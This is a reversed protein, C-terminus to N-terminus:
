RGPAVSSRTGVLAGDGPGSSRAQEGKHTAVSWGLLCFGAAFLLGYTVLHMRWTARPVGAVHQSERFARRYVVREILITVFFAPILLVMGATPVMWYSDGPLWAAHVTVTYLSHWPEALNPAGGGGVCMQVSVLVIWMIPFGALTSLSNAIAAGLWARKWSVDLWRRCLAAEVAIVVPLALILLPWQVFLMPIGANAVIPPIM